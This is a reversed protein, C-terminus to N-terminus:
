NEHKKRVNRKVMAYGGALLSLILIGEGIPSETPELGPQSGEGGGGGWPLEDEGARFLGVGGQSNSDDIMKEVSNNDNNNKSFIGQAQITTGGLLISFVVMVTITVNSKLKM